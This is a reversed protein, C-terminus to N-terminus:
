RRRRRKCIKIVEDDVFDREEVLSCYDDFIEDDVEIGKLIAKNIFYDYYRDAYEGERLNNLRGGGFGEDLPTDINVYVIKDPSVDGRCTYQGDGIDQVKDLDMEVGIINNHITYGEETDTFWFMGGGESYSPIKSKLLGERLIQKLDGRLRHYLIIKGEGAIPRCPKTLFEERTMEYPERVDLPCRRKV